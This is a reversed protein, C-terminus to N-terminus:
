ISQRLFRNPVKLSLFDLTLIKCCGFIHHSGSCRSIMLTKCNGGAWLWALIEGLSDLIRLFCVVADFLNNGTTLTWISVGGPFRVYGVQPLESFWRSLLNLNPPIYSNGTPYKEALRLNKGRGIISTYIVHEAERTEDQVGSVPRMHCVSAHAATWMVQFAARFGSHNCGPLNVHFMIMPTQFIM